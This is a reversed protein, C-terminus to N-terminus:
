KMAMRRRAVQRRGLGSGISGSARATSREHHPKQQGIDTRRGLAKTLAPRPPHARLAGESRMARTPDETRKSKDTMVCDRKVAQLEAWYPKVMPIAAAATLAVALLASLVSGRKM